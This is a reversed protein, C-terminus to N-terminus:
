GGRENVLEKGGREGGRRGGGRRGGGEKGEKIESKQDGWVM